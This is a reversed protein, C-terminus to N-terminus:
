SEYYECERNDVELEIHYGRRLSVKFKKSETAGDCWIAFEM